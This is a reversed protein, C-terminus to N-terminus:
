LAGCLGRNGRSTQQREDRDFNSVLGPWGCAERVSRLFDFSFNFWDM